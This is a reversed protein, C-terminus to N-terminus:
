RRTAFRMLDHREQSTFEVGPAGGIRYSYGAVSETQYGNPNDLGRKAASLIIQTLLAPPEDWGADVDVEVTRPGDPWPKGDDRRMWGDASWDVEVPSGDVRVETVDHLPWAPILLTHQGAADLVLSRADRDIPQGVLEEVRAWALDIAQNSDTLQDLTLDTSPM